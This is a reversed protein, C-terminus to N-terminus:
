AGSHEVVLEDVLLLLLLPPCRAHETCASPAGMSLVVTSFMALVTVVKTRFCIYRHRSM